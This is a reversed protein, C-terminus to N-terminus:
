PAFPSTFRARCDSSTPPVPPASPGPIVIDYTITPRPWRRPDPPCRLSWPSSCPPRETRRSRCDVGAPVSTFLFGAPRPDSHGRGGRARRVRGSVARFTGAPVDFRWGCAPDPGRDPGRGPHRLRARPGREVGRARGDGPDPDFDANGLTDGGQRPLPLLFQVFSCWSGCRRGLMLASILLWGSGLERGLLAQPNQCRGLNVPVPGPAPPRETATSAGHPGPWNALTAAPSCSTSPTPRASSTTRPLEGGTGRSRRDSRSSPPATPGTPVPSPSTDLLTTVTVALAALTKM